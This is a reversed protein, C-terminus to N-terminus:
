DNIGDVVLAKNAGLSGAAGPAALTLVANNGAADQITGGNLALASSSLYDLDASTDGAKVTYSFTLTHTGSGGTYTAFRDIAGTELALTPKGGSTNVIVNENFSVTITIVSGVHYTGNALASTVPAVPGATNIFVVTNGEANGVLADLDGDGDIDVFSPSAFGGVDALGYPNTTPAAFAPKSATGTNLYLLTNGFGNGILADLDGDSDIDVLSPNAYDGVDGLGYRNVVAKGFAPNTATGTNLYVLTNGYGEGIFADLDGDGDIDAFNPVANVGVDKLGYPNTMAAAFAPSSATGTNLYVLTNGYVHGIFADLDGDGDIDAFSPSSMGGDFGLGYPNVTAAAFAPSSATGTNLSVLTNGTVNADFKGIVADLDGDNDIDVFSPKAYFGVDGLGFANTIPGAFVPPPLFSGHPATTDIVLAANAALSGTAGPAALALIANNGAADQITGGNLALAASSKYDLDASTDGAQVIYKFTLTNTGSGSLYSAFRDTTGTELALTPKGGSTNVIVKENFAITVTIVSGAHYAGNATASSVPAVPSATNIFVVTNGAYNGVFADLDGDGDIDVLTPTAMKGVDGLGFPNTIAAAFSPNSSTGTNMYLLTNGADNGIFADLDGDGDIDILDPSANSGVDGLGYPNTVPAAFAPSSGTGTNLQVVTNGQWEGIFADLDGDGDIDVFSANGLSGVDSLGYPNTTPAAFAPSTSSGTNLFLHTDGYFDGIFADLDGDGDIDVLTPHAVIDMDELGYPHALAAGFAPAIATGTNLYLVTTGDSRGIFADLDGDGDIDVLSPSVANADNASGLGYPNTIPAAFVPTPLFSGHPATTDPM